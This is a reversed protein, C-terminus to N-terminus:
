RESQKNSKQKEGDVEWRRENQRGGQERVTHIKLRGTRREDRCEKESKTEGKINTEKPHVAAGHSQCTSISFLFWQIDALSWIM